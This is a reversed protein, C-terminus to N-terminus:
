ERRKGTEDETRNEPCMDHMSFNLGRVTVCICIGILGALITPLVRTWSQISYALLSIVAGTMAAIALIGAALAASTIM